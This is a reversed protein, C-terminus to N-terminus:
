HGLMKTRPGFNRFLVQKTTPKIPAPDNVHSALKSLSNPMWSSVDFHHAGVIAALGSVGVHRTRLEVASPGASCSLVSSLRSRKVGGISSSCAEHMSIVQTSLVNVHETSILRLLGSM